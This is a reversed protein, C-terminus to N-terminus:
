RYRRITKYMEPSHNHKNYIGSSKRITEVPLDPRERYGPLLPIPSSNRKETSSSSTKTMNLGEKLYNKTQTKTWPVLRDRPKQLQITSETVAVYEAAQVHSKTGGRTREIHLDASIGHTEHLYKQSFHKKEPRHANRRESERPRSSRGSLYKMLNFDSDEDEPDPSSTSENMEKKNGKEQVEFNSRGIQSRGIKVDVNLFGSVPRKNKLYFYSRHYHVFFNSNDCRM